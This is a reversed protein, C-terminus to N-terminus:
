PIFGNWHKQLISLVLYILSYLFVVIQFTGFLLSVVPTNVVLCPVPHGLLFCYHSIFVSHQSSLGWFLLSMVLWRWPAPTFPDCLLSESCFYCLVCVIWCCSKCMFMCQHAVFTWSNVILDFLFFLIHLFLPDAWSEYSVFVNTFCPWPLTLVQAQMVAAQMVAALVSESM